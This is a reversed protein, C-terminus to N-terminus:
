RVTFTVTDVVWPQLQLHVGDAVVAILRHEGPMVGEFLYAESGDGMHIIEGPISPVPMGPATLDADLYLHHHGTGSVVEGAPTIEVGAAALRVTINPGDVEAGDMPEIISVTFEPSAATVASEAPTGDTEPTADSGGCAALSLALFPVAYRPLTTM